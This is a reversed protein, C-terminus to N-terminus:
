PHPAQKLSVQGALSSVEFSHASKLCFTESSFIAVMSILHDVLSCAEFHQTSRFTLLKNLLSGIKRPAQRWPTHLDLTSPRFTSSHDSRGLLSWSLPCQNSSSRRKIQPCCHNLRGFLPGWFLAYILSSFDLLSQLLSIWQPVSSLSAASKLIAALLRHSIWFFITEM